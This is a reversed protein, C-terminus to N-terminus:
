LTGPVAVKDIQHIEYGLPVLILHVRYKCGHIKFLDEDRVLIGTGRLLLDVLEMFLDLIVLFLHEPDVHLDRFIQLIVPFLDQRGRGPQFPLCHIEVDPLIRGACLVVVVGKVDDASPHSFLVCLAEALLDLLVFLDEAKCFLIDALQQVSRRCLQPMRGDQLGKLHEQLHVSQGGIVLDIRRGQQGKGIHYKESKHESVQSLARHKADASGQQVPELAHPKCSDNGAAAHKGHDKAQQEAGYESKLVHDLGQPQMRLRSHRVQGEEAAQVRYEHHRHGDAHSDDQQAHDQVDYVAQPLVIRFLRHQIGVSDHAQDKVAADHEAHHEIHCSVGKRRCHHKQHHEADRKQEQEQLLRDHVLHLLLRLEDLAACAHEDGLAEELHELHEQGIKGVGQGEHTDAGKRHAM